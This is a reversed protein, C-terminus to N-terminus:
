LTGKSDINVEQSVVTVGAQNQYFMQYIGSLAPSPHKFKLNGYAQVDFLPSKSNIAYGDKYWTLSKANSVAAPHLIGNAPLHIKPSIVRVLAPKELFFFENCSITIKYLLM